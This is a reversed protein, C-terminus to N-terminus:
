AASAAPQRNSIEILHVAGGLALQLHDKQLTVQGNQGLLDLADQYREVINQWSSRDVRSMNEALCYASTLFKPLTM